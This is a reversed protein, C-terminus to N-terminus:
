HSGTVPATTGDSWQPVPVLLTLVPFAPDGVSANIVPASMGGAGWAPALASRDFYFMLHPRWHPDAGTLWQEPSLMYAMAGPATSFERAAYARLTRAAADAPSTGRLVSEMNALMARLVTRSAAPNFCHPARMRPNWFGPDKMFGPDNVDGAFSRFVACTFGNSGKVAEVYGTRTLVLVTASDSVARPAATRALAVEAARDTMLYPALDPLQAGAPAAFSAICGLALVVTPTRM